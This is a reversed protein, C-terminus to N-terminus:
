KKGRRKPKVAKKEPTEVPPNVRIEKYNGAYGADMMLRAFADDVSIIDDEYFDILDVGNKSARCDMLVQLKKMDAKKQKSGAM